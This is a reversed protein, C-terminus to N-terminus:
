NRKYVRVYDIELAPNSWNDLDSQTPFFNGAERGLGGANAPFNTWNGGVALNMILYLPEYNVEDSDLTSVVQGDILWEVRGPEWRVAYVHYNRSYDTGTYVQGSPYPKLFNADGAHTPSVNKFFHFSTYVYHPAHGLNEMIDIETRQTDEFARRREHFLWFAPFTGEQSPIKIRAEYYGYKQSFKEYTSMSGSLFPQQRVIDRLPGFSLNTNADKLPNRVARIALRSGDMEFPNPITEMLRRHEDDQTLPNVYFQHEGNILRYEFREGNFEGDWKLQTNWRNGNLSTGNFEDSFVLEYGPKEYVERYSWSAPDILGGDAPSPATAPVPQSAPQPVAPAPADDQPQGPVAQQEFVQGVDGPGDPGFASISTVLIKLTQSQASYQGNGDISKVTLSHDGIWLNSSTYSPGSANGAIQGDVTVEYQVAGGVPDWQWLVTGSGLDTARLGGPADIASAMSSLSSLMLVVLSAFTLRISRSMM